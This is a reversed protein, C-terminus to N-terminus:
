RSKGGGGGGRRGGGGQACSTRRRLCSEDEEELVSNVRKDEERISGQGQMTGIVTSLISIKYLNAIILEDNMLKSKHLLNM